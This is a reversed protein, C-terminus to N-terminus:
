VAKYFGYVHKRDMKKDIIPSSHWSHMSRPMFYCTGNTFPAQDIFECDDRNISQDNDWTESVDFLPKWFQTGYEEIQESGPLYLGFTMEFDKYDVHVDNITFVDTDKWLWFQTSQYEVNLEFKDVLACQVYWNGFVTDNLQVYAPLSDINHFFRGPVDEDETMHKPWTDILQTLLEPHIFDKVLLKHNKVDTDRIKELSWLTYEHFFINSEEITEVMGGDLLIPLRPYWPEAGNSFDHTCSNMLGCVTCKLRPYDPDYESPHFPNGDRDLAM